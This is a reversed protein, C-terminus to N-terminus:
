QTLDAADAKPTENRYNDVVQAAKQGDMKVDPHSEQSASLNETQLLINKSVSKGYDEDM